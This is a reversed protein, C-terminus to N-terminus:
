RGNKWTFACLQDNKVTSPAPPVATSIGFHDDLRKQSTTARLSIVWMESMGNTIPM